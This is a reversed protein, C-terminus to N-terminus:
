ERDVPVPGPAQPESDFDDTKNGKTLCLSVVSVFFVLALLFTLSIDVKKNRRFASQSLYFLSITFDRGRGRASHSVHVLYDSWDSWDSM